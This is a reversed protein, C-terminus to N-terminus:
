GTSANRGPAGLRQLMGISTGLFWLMTVAFAFAGFTGELSFAGDDNFLVFSGVVNVVAALVALWASWRPLVDTVFVVAAYAIALLAGVLGFLVTMAVGLDFAFRVVEPALRDAVQNALAVQVAMGALLLATIVAAGALFLDALHGTDGEARRLVSRVAAAFWLFLVAGLGLLWAQTLLRDRKSLFFDKFAQDSDDPTPPTGVIVVAAIGIVVLVVGAAAGFRDWRRDRM